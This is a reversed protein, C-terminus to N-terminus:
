IVVLFTYFVHNNGVYNYMKVYFTVQGLTCCLIISCGTVFYVSVVVKQLTKPFIFKNDDCSVEISMNSANSFIILFMLLVITFSAILVFKINEINKLFIDAVCFVCFLYLQNVFFFCAFILCCFCCNKREYFRQLLPFITQKKKKQTHTHTNKKWKFDRRLFFQTQRTKNISSIYFHMKFFLNLTNKLYFSKFHM